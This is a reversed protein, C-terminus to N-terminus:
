VPSSQKAWRRLYGSKRRRKRDVSGSPRGLKKGQKIARRLGDKTRSVILEREYEALVMLMRLFMRGEPTNTDISQSLSVFGIKRNNFEEFLNLLHRLSRGIRDLKYCVICDLKNNRMDSLLREFEPRNENKGSFGNDVYEGVIEYDMRKCYDRLALLQTDINQDRSSVRAYLGIKRM